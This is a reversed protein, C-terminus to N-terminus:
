RAEVDSCVTSWLDTSVYKLGSDCIHLAVTGGRHPGQLLKLAAAINAGSSYGAFIGEERALRHTADIVEADTVSLYGDVYKRDVLPLDKGYGGGQILHACRTVCQGALKAMGDPEVIYCMINPNHEKFAQACGAFGGGTGVFDCFADFQGDTKELWDPGTRQYHALVNAHSRFQDSFFAGREQVISAAQAEVSKMDEATVQGPRGTSQEALVVEAGMAKMMAAREPSCGVSMVAVFPYGKVACAMALGNGTNGSTVEVVTQGPSIAGAQEAAELIAVAIVDKKSGSPNLYDLKALIRGNEQRALRQLEVIPTKGVADLISSHVGTRPFAHQPTMSGNWSHFFYAFVL